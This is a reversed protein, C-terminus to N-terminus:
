KPLNCSASPLMRGLHITAMYLMVKSVSGPKYASQYKIYLLFNVYIKIFNCIKLTKVSM